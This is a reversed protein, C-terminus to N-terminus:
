GVIFGNVDFEHYIKYGESVYVEMEESVTDELSLNQWNDITVSTDNPLDVIVSADDGIISETVANLSAIAINANNTLEAVNQAFSNQNM